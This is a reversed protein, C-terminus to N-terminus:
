LRYKLIKAKFFLLGCLCKYRWGASGDASGRTEQRAQRPELFSRDSPTASGSGSAGNAHLERGAFSGKVNWILLNLCQDKSQWGCPQSISTSPNPNFKKKRNRERGEVEGLGSYLLLFLKVFSPAIYIPMHALLTCCFDILLYLFYFFLKVHRSVRLM